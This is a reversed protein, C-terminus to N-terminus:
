LGAITDLLRDCVARDIEVADACEAALAAVCGKLSRVLVEPEIRPVLASEFRDRAESPLDELGRGYEDPLDRRRCAFALARERMSSIAHEAQWWRRREICVRAHHAWLVAWGLIESAPSVEHMRMEGPEGFISRFRPSTPRFESAATFSLDLQLCDPFMYVRYISPGASLDFLVVAGTEVLDATWEDLVDAVAVADDVAFTLDVDSWQDGAGVSLSGVEAAAVVRRDARAM